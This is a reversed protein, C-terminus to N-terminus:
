AVAAVGRDPGAFIADYHALDVNAVEWWTSNLDQIRVARVGDLDLVDSVQKIGYDDGHTLAAARAADVEEPTAVALRFLNDPTQDKAEGGDVCVCVVTWPGGRYIYQAERFPRHIDLGLFETFFRRTAGMDTCEVTGHSLTENRILADIM